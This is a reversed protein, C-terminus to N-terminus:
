TPTNTEDLSEDDDDEVNQNFESDSPSPQHM